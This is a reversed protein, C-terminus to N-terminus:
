LVKCPADHRSRRLAAHKSSPFILRGVVNFLKLRNSVQDVCRQQPFYHSPLNPHTNNVRLDLRVSPLLHLVQAASVVACVRSECASGRRHSRVRSVCACCLTEESVPLRSTSLSSTYNLCPASASSKQRVSRESGQRGGNGPQEAGGGREGGGDRNLAEGNGRKGGLGRRLSM